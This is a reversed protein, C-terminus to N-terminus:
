KIRQTASSINHSVLIIAEWENVADQKLLTEVSGVQLVRTGCM